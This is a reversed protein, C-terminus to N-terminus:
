TLGINKGVCLEIKDTSEKKIREEGKETKEKEKAEGEGEKPESLYRSKLARYM